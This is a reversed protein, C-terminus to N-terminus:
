FLYFGIRRDGEEEMTISYLIRTVAIDVDTDIDIDKITKSCFIRLWLKSSCIILSKVNNM